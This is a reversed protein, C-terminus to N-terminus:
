LSNLVAREQMMKLLELPQRVELPQPLQTLARGM